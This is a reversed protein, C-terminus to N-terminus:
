RTSRWWVCVSQAWRIVRVLLGMSKPVSLQIPRKELCRIVHRAATERSMMLPRKPAKAMKTDVFGFRVNTVYVGYERLKFAMALLYSSFAAKSASYSPAHANYFDDAISSLGVFHGAKREIWDPVLLEMTRVMAVLNVEFVRPENSLDPLELGSGMGACYICADFPGEEQLIRQLLKPYDPAAVDQVEHRLGDHGLPSASRSIGVVQDGRAILADTVAAGIGDSNGIILVRQSM